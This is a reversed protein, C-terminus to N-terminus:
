FQGYANLMYCFLSPALGMYLLPEKFYPSRAAGTFAGGPINDGYAKRVYDERKNMNDYEPMNRHVKQSSSDKFSISPSCTSITSRRM